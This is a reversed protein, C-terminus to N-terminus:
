SVSRPRTLLFRGARGRAPDIGPGFWGVQECAERRRRSWRRLVPHHRDNFDILLRRGERTAPCILQSEPILPLHPGSGVWIITDFAGPEFDQLGDVTAICYGEVNWRSRGRRLIERHHNTLGADVVNQGTRIPWAPLEKGLQVVHEIADALVVVRQPVLNLLDRAVDPYHRRLLELSGNRLITALRRVRANRIACRWVGDRKLKYAKINDPLFTTEIKHRAVEVRVPQYGHAPVAVEYPGFTAMLLDRERPSVRGDDALLGFLHFRADQATFAYQAADALAQVADLAVVIDRKEFDYDPMAMNTSTDVVIRRADECLPTTVTEEMNVGLVKLQRRAREASQRSSTVVAILNEPYARYLQAVLWLPNVRRRDYRIVGREHAVFRIVHNDVARGDRPEVPVPVPLRALRPEHWVTQIQGSSLGMRMAHLQLPLLLGANVRAIEAPPFLLSEPWDDVTYGHEPDAHALRLVTDLSLVLQGDAEPLCLRHGSREIRLISQTPQVERTHEATDVAM